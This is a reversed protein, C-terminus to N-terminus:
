VKIHSHAVCSAGNLEVLFCKAGFFLAYHFSRVAFDHMGLQADAVRDEHQGVFELL